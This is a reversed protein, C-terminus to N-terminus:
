PMHYHNKRQTKKNLYQYDAQDVSHTDRKQIHNVVSSKKTAKRHPSSLAAVTAVLATLPVLVRM